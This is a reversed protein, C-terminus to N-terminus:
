IGEYEELLRSQRVLNSDIGFKECIAKVSSIYPEGIYPSIIIKRILKTVNVNISRPLIEYKSWYDNFINNTNLTDMICPVHFLRVENEHEFEKRKLLMSAYQIGDLGLNELAIDPDDFNLYRIKDLHVLYENPESIISEELAGVTTKIAVSKGNDGYLKWMAESEFKSEYWCCICPRKRVKENMASLKNSSNKQWEEMENGMMEYLPQENSARRENVETNLDSKMRRFHNVSRMHFKRPLYGELPDSNKFFSLPALFLTNSDLLHIFKDLSVYRWLVTDKPLKKSTIIKIKNKM